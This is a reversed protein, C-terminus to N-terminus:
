ARLKASSIYVNRSVAVTNGLAFIAQRKRKGNLSSDLFPDNVKIKLDRFVDDKFIV